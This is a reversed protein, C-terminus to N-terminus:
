KCHTAGNPPHLDKKILLFLSREHTRGFFRWGANELLDFLSRADSLVKDRCDNSVVKSLYILTLETEMLLSSEARSLRGSYQHFIELHDWARNVLRGLETPTIYSFPLIQNHHLVHVAM